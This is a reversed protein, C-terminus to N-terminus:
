VGRPAMDLRGGGCFFVNKVFIIKNRGVMVYTYFCEIWPECINQPSISGVTSLFSCSALRVLKLIQLHKILHM